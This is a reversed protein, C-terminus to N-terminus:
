FVRSVGKYFLSIIKPGIHHFIQSYDMVQSSFFNADFSRIQLDKLNKQMDADKAKGAKDLASLVWEKDM